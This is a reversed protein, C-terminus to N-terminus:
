RRTRRPLTQDRGTQHLAIQRPCGQRSRHRHHPRLRPMEPLRRTPQQILLACCIARSPHLWDKSQDLQHLFLPVIIRRPHLRPRQRPHLRSRPSRPPASPQRPHPHPPRPHGLDPIQFKFDGFAARRHAPNQRRHARPSLRPRQPLPLARRGQCRRSRPHPLHHSDASRSSKCHGM